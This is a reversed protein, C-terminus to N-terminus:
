GTAESTTPATDTLADFAEDISRRTDTDRRAEPSGTLLDNLLVPVHGREAGIM